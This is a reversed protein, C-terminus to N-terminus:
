ERHFIKPGDTRYGADAETECHRRRAFAAVVDAAAGVPGPGAFPDALFVARPTPVVDAASWERRMDEKAIASMTFRLGVGSIPGVARLNKM